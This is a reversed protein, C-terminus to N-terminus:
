FTGNSIVAVLNGKSTYDYALEPNAIEKVPACCGHILWCCRKDNFTEIILRLKAQSVKIHFDLAEKDSYHDIETKQM